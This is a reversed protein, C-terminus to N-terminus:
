GLSMARAIAFSQSVIAPSQNTTVGLNYCDGVQGSYITNGRNGGWGSMQGPSAAPNARSGGGGTGGRGAMGAAYAAEVGGITLPGAHDIGRQVMEVIAAGAKPLGYLPSRHDKPESFPLMNRLESLKAQVSAMFGNWAGLFGDRITNVIAQGVGALRGPLKMVIQVMLDWIGAWTAKIEAMSTGFIGAVIQLLGQVAGIINLAVKGITMVITDWAKQWDGQLLALVTAFIGQILNLAGTIINSIMQWVGTIITQIDDGHKQIYDAVAKLIVQVLTLVVNLALNIATSISNWTQQVWALVETGHTTWFGQIINLISGIISALSNMIGPVYTAITGFVMQVVGLIAQVAGQVVGQITTWASSISATTVGSQTILGQFTSIILQVVPIAAQIAGVVIAFGPSIASLKEIVLEAAGALGGTGLAAVGTQLAGVLTQFLPPTEKLWASVGEGGRALEILYFAISGLPESWSRLASAFKLLPDTASAFPTFFANIKAIGPSIYTNLLTALVPLLLSGITKQLTEVQSKAGELAGKYGKTRAAALDAAAGQRTVAASMEDWAKPGAAILETVVRIADAGFITTIANDRAEMTMGATAKATLEIIDRFSRMNGQADYAIDGSVGISAALEQMLGKAKKSPGTLQLLAQKLSTGADSGKIGANGLIGIATTLDTIATKGDALRGQFTSFVAGAMTFSQAVDTIEVSSASSAAALLDSVFTADKAELGFANIANSAIEAAKAEEIQAAAALQLTGKAADMAEQVTFGAKSLELMAEGADVASTAPLTLDAGLATAKASVQEMQSATAGSTAQLLNMTEEFDAAINISDGIFAAGARAAAAFAEVALVGVQRLAGIMVQGAASVGGGARQTAGVFRNVAGEAGKLDAGFASAGQAVLAVGAQQLAM